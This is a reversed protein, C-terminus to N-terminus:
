VAYGTEISKLQKLPQGIITKRTWIMWSMEDVGIAVMAELDPDLRDAILKAVRLKNILFVATHGYYFILPHRLPIAKKYFAEDSALCDFLREYLTFTRHFYNKIEARKAEVDNGELSLTKTALLQQEEESIFGEIIQNM